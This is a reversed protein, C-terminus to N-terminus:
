DKAWDLSPSVDPTHTHIIDSLFTLSLILPQVLLILIFLFCLALIRGLRSKQEYFVGTLKQKM